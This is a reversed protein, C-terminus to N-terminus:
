LDTELRWCVQMQVKGLVWLVAGDLEGIGVCVSEIENEIVADM